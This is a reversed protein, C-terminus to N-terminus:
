LDLNPYNMEQPHGSIKEHRLAVIALDEIL